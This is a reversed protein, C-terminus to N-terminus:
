QFSEKAERQRDDRWTTVESVSWSEQSRSAYKDYLDKVVQVQKEYFSEVEIKANALVMGLFRLVNFHVDASFGSCTLDDFGGDLEYTLQKIFTTKGTNGPGLLALKVRPKKREKSGTCGMKCVPHPSVEEGQLSRSFLGSYFPALM